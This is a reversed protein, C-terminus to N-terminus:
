NYIKDEDQYNYSSLIIGILIYFYPVVEIVNVSFLAQVMYVIFPIICIVTIKNKSFVGNSLTNIFLAIYSIFGLIGLTAFIHMYINYARDVYLPSHEQFAKYFNEPGTGFLVNEAVVQTSINTIFLKNNLYNQESISDNQSETENSDNRIGLITNSIENFNSKLTYEKDIDINYIKEFILNTGFFSILITAIIIFFAILTKKIKEKFNFFMFILLLILGLILGILPVLSQSLMLTFAFLISFLLYLKNHKENWIYMGISILTLLLMYTGLYLPNSCLGSALYEYTFALPFNPIFCQCIAFISQFIGLGIFVNLIKKHRMKLKINKVSLLIIFYSCLTLLGEYRNNIGLLAQLKDEAMSTSILAAMTFIYIIIDSASIKIRKKAINIIYIILLILSGFILIYSSNLYHYLAAQELKNFIMRVIQWIPLLVMIAIIIGFSLKDLKNNKLEKIRQKELKKEQVDKKIKKKSSM